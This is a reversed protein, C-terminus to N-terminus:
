RSEMDIVTSIDFGGVTYGKERLILILEEVTEPIWSRDFSDGPTKVLHAAIKLYSDRGDHLLIIGGRQHEVTAVIRDIVERKKSAPCVADYPRATAPILTYGQDKWIREHRAQYYGGQPRYLRPNLPEGELAVLIIKEGEMLNTYFRQNDM